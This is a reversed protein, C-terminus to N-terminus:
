AVVYPGTPMFNPMFLPDASYLDNIISQGLWKGAYGGAYEAIHDKLTIVVNDIFNEIATIRAQQELVTTRHSSEQHMLNREFDTLLSTMEKFSILKKDVLWLTIFEAGKLLVIDQNILVEDKDILGQQILFPAIYKTLIEPSTVVRALMKLEQYREKWDAMLEQPLDCFVESTEDSILGFHACVISTLAISTQTAKGCLTIFRYILGKNKNALFRGATFGICGSVYKALMREVYILFLKQDTCSGIGHQKEYAHKLKTINYKKDFLNDPLNGLPIFDQKFLRKFFPVPVGSVAKLGFPLLESGCETFFDPSAINLTMAELTEIAQANHKKLFSSINELSKKTTVEFLKIVAAKLFQNEEPWLQRVENKKNLIYEQLSCSFGQFYAWAIFLKISAGSISKTDNFSSGVLIPWITSAYPLLELLITIERPLGLPSSKQRSALEHLPTEGLLVSIFRSRDAEHKQNRLTLGIFFMRIGWDIGQVGVKRLDPTVIVSTDLKSMAKLCSFGFTALSPANIVLRHPGAAGIPAPTITEEWYIEQFGEWLRYINSFWQYLTATDIQPALSCSSSLKLFSKVSIQYSKLKNHWLVLADKQQLSSPSDKKMVIELELLAKDLQAFATDLAETAHHLIAQACFAINNKQMGVLLFELESFLNFLKTQQQLSAQIIHINTIIGDLKQNFTQNTDTNEAESGIIETVFNALAHMEHCVALAKQHTAENSEPSENELEACISTIIDQLSEQINLQRVLKEYSSQADTVLAQLKAPLATFLTQEEKQLRAAEAAVLNNLLELLKQHADGSGGLIQGLLDQGSFIDTDATEDAIHASDNSQQSAQNADAEQSLVAAISRLDLDPSSSTKDDSSACPQESSDQADAHLGSYCQLSVLCSFVLFYVKFHTCM